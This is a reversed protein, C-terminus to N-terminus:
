VLGESKSGDTHMTTPGQLKGLVEGLLRPAIIHFLSEGIGWLGMQMGKHVKPVFTLDVLHLDFDTLFHGRSVM